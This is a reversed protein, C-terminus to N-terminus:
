GGIRKETSQPHESRGRTIVPGEPHPCAGPGESRSPAVVARGSGAGDPPPPEGRPPPPVAEKHKPVLQSVVALGRKKAM